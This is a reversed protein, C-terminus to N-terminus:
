GIGWERQLPRRDQILYISRYLFIHRSANQKNHCQKLLHSYAHPLHQTLVISVLTSNHPNDFYPFLVHLTVKLLFLYRSASYNSSFYIAGLPEEFVELGYKLTTPVDLLIHIM